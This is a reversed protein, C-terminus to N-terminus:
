YNAIAYNVAASANLNGYGKTSNRSPYFQTTNTLCTMLQARTMNPKASWVVAAIGAATSTAASSGGIYSPTVGSAPLTLSNRNSNATREMTITYLVKSGDHCTACKSGNEKVGTVANCSSYNAPYIVGWWSTWSLSTGAAALIVKGQNYAYDVGDKLVGSGFPSGVSLSIIRIAANNGMQILANKVATKEASGDLVVDECARIFYLNSEYAVGTTANQNNRPGAALGSMSNGHTCTNFPSTGLTFGTTVTRGVNSVGSNFQSGLLTQSSSIGADIVGITIGQGRASNWAAPITHNNYNWPLIAGPTITTYDASTLAQTSADCGSASSVRQMDAPWYDLPELYRVNQLNYLKTLLNKNTLRITIIPLTQDDEILIDQLTVPQQLDRNLEELIFKLLADHVEKYAGEKVKVQHIKTSIDGTGAPKYGIALAHNNYQLASWLTKLDLWEWQFDNRSELTAIVLKDLDFRSVPDGQPIATPNQKVVLAGSEQTTLLDDQKTCSGMSILLSLAFIFVHKKM